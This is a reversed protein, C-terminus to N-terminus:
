KIDQVIRYDSGWNDVLFVYSDRWASVAVINFGSRELMEQAQEQVSDCEYDFGVIKSQMRDDNCRPKEFFKVRCGRTNTPPLACAEIMRVRQYIKPEDKNGELENLRDCDGQLNYSSFVWGSGYQKGRYMVGGLERANNEQVLNVPLYYRPNGNRCNDLRIYNDTTIKM